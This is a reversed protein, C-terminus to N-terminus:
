QSPSPPRYAHLSDALLTGWSADYPHVAAVVEGNRYVPRGENAWRFLSGKLNVANAFGQTRLAQTVGASRYGVSCYVVIPTDPPLSDLAPYRKASPDVRRAGRFHSVAYEEPSRADLLLPSPATDDSLREALSDTSISPVNPSNAAIMHEVARWTFDQSCGTQVALLCCLSAVARRM